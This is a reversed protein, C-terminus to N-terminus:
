CGLFARKLMIGGPGVFVECRSRKGLIVITDVNRAMLPADVPIYESMIGVDLEDINFSRLPLPGFVCHILLIHLFGMLRPEKHPCVMKQMLPTCSRLLKIIETTGGLTAM